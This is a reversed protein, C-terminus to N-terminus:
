PDSLVLAISGGRPATARYLVPPQRPPTCGGRENNVPPQRSAARDRLQTCLLAVRLLGSAPFPAPGLPWDVVQEAQFGADGLAVREAHPGGGGAGPGARGVGVLRAWGTVGRERASAGSEVVLAVAGEGASDPQERRCRVETRRRWSTMTDGAVVVLRAARGNRIALVSHLLAQEGSLVDDTHTASPGRLGLDMAIHAAPAGDISDPFDIPNTFYAGEAVLKTVYRLATEQCGYGTGFAVGTTEDPRERGLDLKADAVALRASVMGLVSLRDLRRLRQPEIFKEPEFATLQGAGLGSAVLGRVVDGTGVAFRTVLGIGTVRLADDM